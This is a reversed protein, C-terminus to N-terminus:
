DKSKKKTKCASWRDSGTGVSAKGVRREEERKRDLDPPVPSRGCGRRGTDLTNRRPGFRVVARWAQGRQDRTRQVAAGDRGARKRAAASRSGVLAPASLGLDSSCVASMWDSMRM